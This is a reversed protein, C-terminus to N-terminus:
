VSGEEGLMGLAPDYSVCTRQNTMAKSFDPPNGRFVLPLTASIGVPGVPNMKIYDDLEDASKSMRVLYSEPRPIHCGKNPNWM